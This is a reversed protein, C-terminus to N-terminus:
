SFVEQEAAGDGSVSIFGGMDGVLRLATLCGTTYAGTDVAIRGNRLSPADVIHHGYVVWLGDSRRMRLFDDCGWALVQPLQADAPKQPDAGAHTVMVNGLQFQPVMQAIFAAHQGMAKRLQMSLALLDDPDDPDGIRSLGYSLLTEYGGFRVWHRGKVPNNLFHQLMLEHNGAIFVTEFEPWERVALLFELVGASQPGRDILDGVFALVPPVGNMDDLRLSDRLIRDIMQELLDLRGHVDGVVYLAGDVRPVTSYPVLGQLFGRKWFGKRM